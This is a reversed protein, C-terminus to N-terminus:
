FHPITLNILNYGFVVSIIGLIAWLSFAIALGIIANTIQSRAITLKKEDGASTIWKIGGLVFTFFFFITIGIFILNLFSPIFKNVTIKTLNTFSNKNDSIFNVGDPDILPRCTSGDWNCGSSECSGYETCIHCTSSSCSTAAKTIKPSFIIFLFISIFIFINTITKQKTSKPM